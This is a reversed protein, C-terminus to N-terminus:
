LFLLRSKNHLNMKDEDTWFGFSACAVSDPRQAHILVQEDFTYKYMKAATDLFKKWEDSSSVIDRLTKEALQEYKRYIWEQLIMVEKIMTASYLTFTLVQIYNKMNMAM